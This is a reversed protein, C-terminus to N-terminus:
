GRMLLMAAVVIGGISIAAGYPLTGGPQSAAPNSQPEPIAPKAGSSGPYATSVAIGFRRAGSMLLSGLLVHIFAMTRGFFGPTATTRPATPRRCVLMALALVGGVLATVVALEAVHHSGAWLSVAAFFKVDGGGAFRMAFLLFGIGLAIGGVILGDIWDVGYPASVVHIPYLLVIAACYRNPIILNRVDSVAVAILLGVLAALAAQNVFLNAFM